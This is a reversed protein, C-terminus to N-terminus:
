SENKSEGYENFATKCKHVAPYWQVTGSHRRQTVFSVMALKNSKYESCLLIWGTGKGLGVWCWDGMRLRRAAPVRGLAGKM